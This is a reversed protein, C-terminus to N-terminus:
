RLIDISSEIMSKTAQIASANLDYSRAAGMLDVMEESPNVNPYSVYGQADAEPNGPDYRRIAPTPDAVVQQVRVGEAQLDSISALADSFPSAQQRTSAFVVQVRKYPGGEPTSTTESNALNSTVIEAREREATLASGSIDLVGFLNM